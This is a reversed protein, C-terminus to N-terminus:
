TLFTLRAILHGACLVVNPELGQESSDIWRIDITYSGTGQQESELDSVRDWSLRDLREIKMQKFGMPLGASGWSTHSVLRSLVVVKWDSVAKWAVSVRFPDEPDSLRELLSATPSLISLLDEPWQIGHVTSHGSSLSDIPLVFECFGTLLQYLDRGGAADGSHRMM